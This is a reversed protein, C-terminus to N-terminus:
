MTSIKSCVPSAVGHERHAVAIELEVKVGL